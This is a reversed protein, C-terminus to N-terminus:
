LETIIFVTLAFTLLHMQKIVVVVFYIHHIISIFLDSIILFSWVCIWTNFGARYVVWGLLYVWM